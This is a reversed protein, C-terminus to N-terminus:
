FINACSFFNLILGISVSRSPLLIAYLGNSYNANNDIDLNM